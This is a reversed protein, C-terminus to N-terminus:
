RRLVLVVILIVLFAIFAGAIGGIISVQNNVENTGTTFKYVIHEKTVKEVDLQVLVMSTTVPHRRIVNVVPSAVTLAMNIVPVNIEANFDRLDLRADAWVNGPRETVDIPYEATTMVIKNVTIGLSELHVNMENNRPLNGTTCFNGKYGTDCGEPCSGNIHHCQKYGLCAGCREGCDQGYRGDDCENECQYGQYGPKCWSCVGTEVHCYRCKDPCPLSCNPGYYGDTFLMDYVEVECLENHAYNSYGDPYTVNSLRENYYIVYQGHVPCTINAVAPITSNDYNTDRFCLHGNLRETTNSVYVSFGLFRATYGNSSDWAANDTRYYIRINRISYISQLNVWWTATRQYDASVTCHGGWASLDSKQGDVANSSDFTSDGVNYQNSQWTPKNLAVNDYGYALFITLSLYYIEVSAM